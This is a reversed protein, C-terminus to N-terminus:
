EKDHIQISDFSHTKTSSHSPHSVRDSGNSNHIGICGPWHGCFLKKFKVVLESINQTKICSMVYMLILM